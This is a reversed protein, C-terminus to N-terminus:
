AADESKDEIQQPTVNKMGRALAFAIRRLTDRQQNTDNIEIPKNEMGGIQLTDGFMAPARKAMLKMRTEVRLRSRNIFENNVVEREEGERGVIRTDNSTDDAIDVCDDAMSLANARAAIQYRRIFDQIDADKSEVDAIWAYVTARSPMHDDRCIKSISEGGAFRSLLEDVVEARFTVHARLSM